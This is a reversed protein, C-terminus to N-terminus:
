VRKCKIKKKKIKKKNISKSIKYFIVDDINREICYYIFSSPTSFFLFESEERSRARFLFSPPSSPRAPLHPPSCFGSHSSLHPPWPSPSPRQSSSLKASGTRPDTWCTSIKLRTSSSLTSSPPPPLRRRDKRRM